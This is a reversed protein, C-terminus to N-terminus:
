RSLDTTARPVRITMERPKPQDPPELELVKRQSLDPRPQLREGVLGDRVEDLCLRWRWGLARSKVVDPRDESTWGTGVEATSGRAQEGKSTAQRGLGFGFGM